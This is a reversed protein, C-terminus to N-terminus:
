KNTNKKNQNRFQSPTMGVTHKFFRTFHTPEDFGCLFGVKAISLMDQKLLLQKARAIKKSTIYEASSMGTTQRILRRLQQSHINLDSALNIANLKDDRMMREIAADVIALFEKTNDTYNM